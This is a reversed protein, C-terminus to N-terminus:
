YFELFRMNKSGPYAECVYRPAYFLNQQGNKFHIRFLFSPNKSETISITDERKFNTKCINLTHFIVVIIIDKSWFPM